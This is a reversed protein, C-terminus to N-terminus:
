AAAPAMAGMGATDQSSRRSFAYLASGPVVCQNLQAAFDATQRDTVLACAHVLLSKDANEHVLILEHRSGSLSARVHHAIGIFESLEASWSSTGSMSRDTVRVLSGDIEISRRLGLRNFFRSAPIGWLLAWVILGATTQVVAMPQSAIMARSAPEAVATVALMLVPIMLALTAPVLLLLFFVASFRSPRQEIRMLRNNDGFTSDVTEIDSIRM